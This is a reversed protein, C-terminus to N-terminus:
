DSTLKMHECRDTLEVVSASDVALNSLWSKKGNAVVAPPGNQYKMTIMERKEPRKQTKLGEKDARQIM